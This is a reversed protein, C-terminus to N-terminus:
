NKPNSSEAIAASLAQAIQPMASLPLHEVGGIVCRNLLDVLDPEGATGNKLANFIRLDGITLKDLTIQIDLQVPTEVPAPTAKPTRPM